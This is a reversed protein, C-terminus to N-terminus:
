ERNKDIRIVEKEIPVAFPRYKETNEGLCTFQKKFEEALEKIIFHYDYSSGNLFVIHIKIPVSYKLNCISHAAGRYEGTYNCYDKVKSYKKDTLYKNEFKEKCIYCIEANEYPEQQEKTLLKMKKKKFNIIKMTHEKLSQCFKTMCTKGRYVDHKNEISRFLSVTSM